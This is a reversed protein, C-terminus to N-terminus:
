KNAAVKESSALKARAVMATIQSKASAVAKRYCTGDDPTLPDAEFCAKRAAERVNDNLLAVGSDNTLTEPDPIVRAVVTVNEIPADTAEDRGVVKVVPPEIVVKDLEAAYVNATLAFAGLAFALPLTVTKM